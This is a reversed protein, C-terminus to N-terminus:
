GAARNNWPRATIYSHRNGRDSPQDAAREVPPKTPCMVPVPFPTRGLVAMVVPAGLERPMTTSSTPIAPQGEREVRTLPYPM